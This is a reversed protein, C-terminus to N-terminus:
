LSRSLLGLGSVMLLASVAAQFQRHTLRQYIAFGAIGGLLAFPVFGFDDFRPPNRAAQLRLCVITVIQMVLIFPQYVARQPAQGLRADLVLDHRVFRVTRCTRRGIRGARRRHCEALRHRERCIMAAFCPMAATRACSFASGSATFPATSTCSCGFASPCRRPARSGDDAMARVLPDLRPDEVRRLAPDRHLVGGDNAGGARSRFEPVRVRQGGARLVRIGRHEFWPPRGIIAAVVLTMSAGADGRAIAAEIGAFEYLTWAVLLAFAIRALSFPSMPSM